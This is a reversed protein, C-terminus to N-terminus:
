EQYGIMAGILKLQLPPFKPLEYRKFNFFLFPSSVCDFCIFYIMKIPRSRGHIVGYKSPFGCCSCRM